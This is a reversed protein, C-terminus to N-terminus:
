LRSYGSTVRAVSNICCKFSQLEYFDRGTLGMLRLDEVCQRMADLIQHDAPEALGIKQKFWAAFSRLWQFFSPDLVDRMFRERICFVSDWTVCEPCDVIFDIKWKPTRGDAGGFPLSQDLVVDMKRDGYPYFSKRRVGQNDRLIDQAQKYRENCKMGMPVLNRLNAATFPYRSKM